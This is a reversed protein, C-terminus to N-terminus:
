SPSPATAWAGFYADGLFTAGVRAHEEALRAELTEIDLEAETVVGTRLLRPMVARLISAIPHPTEPTQAIGDMRVHEVRLGVRAFLPALHFGMNPNAGEHEVMTRLWAVTQAHLPMAKLSHPVMSFDIEQFVMVGGPKLKHMLARLTSEPDPLYMLVRRGVIADFMGWSAHWGSAVDRLDLAEYVLNDERKANACWSLDRDVALVFGTEGVCAQAMQAVLGRGCGIDLVRMGPSVGADCLLRRMTLEPYNLM